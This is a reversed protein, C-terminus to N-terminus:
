GAQGIARHYTIKRKHWQIKDQRLSSPGVAARQSPRTRAQARVRQTITGRIPQATLSRREHNTNDDVDVVFALLFQTNHRHNGSM